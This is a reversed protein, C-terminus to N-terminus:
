LENDANEVQRAIDDDREILARVATNVALETKSAMTLLRGNLDDLENQFHRSM